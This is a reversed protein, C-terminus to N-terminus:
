PMRGALDCRQLIELVDRRQTEAALRQRADGGDRSKAQNRAMARGLPGPGDLGLVSPRAGRRGGRMRGAGRDLDAVQEVVGRGPPPEQLGLPRLEAVDLPDGLLDRQTAERRGQADRVVLLAHEVQRSRRRPRLLFIAHCADAAALEDLM